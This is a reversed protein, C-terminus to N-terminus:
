SCPTDGLKCEKMDYGSFVKDIYNRQFLRLIGQSRERLIEIGLVSSTEGFDKIEFNSFLFNKIQYLINKDNSVLLIDDVYLVLFIFKSECFKLYICEDVLNPKFGESSINHFKLYWQRSAQKLGYMSKKLQCVMYKPDGTVFNKPQKMYITEDINDNLFTTKVDM